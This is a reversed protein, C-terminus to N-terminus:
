SLEGYLVWKPLKLPVLIYGDSTICWKLTLLLYVGLKESRVGWITKKSFRGWWYSYIM